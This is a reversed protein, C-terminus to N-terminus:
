PALVFLTQGFEVPEANGVSIETITGAREATIENFIKMAEIICLVQGQVVRDGVKVFPESDPNPAAYFTGVMPSEVRIGDDAPAAAAGPAAAAAAVAPRVTVRAGGVEVSVESQGAGEVVQVLTEILGRDIAMGEDGAEEAALSRRRDVLRRGAEPFQALIVADEESVDSPADALVAALEAPEGTGGAGRAVALADESVDVRLRGRAGLAVDALAPTTERWRVGDVVHRAAQAVIAEGVPPAFTVGGLDRCVAACEDAAEHARAALGQRALRALLGAALDPPLQLQPGGALEAARRVREQAVLPWLVRGAEELAPVDVDFERDGGHLAVYLAEASPRGAVLAAAGVSAHIAHAGALAASLASMSALGGTARLSVEVPLPCRATVNGVLLGMAVPTLNGGLDSICLSTAGPLQSLALAEEVWRADDADPVPGLVLTPVFDIGAERAGEAVGRLADPDNLADYARVRAAGSAAASAVLRAAVGAGVPVEGLLTRGTVVIGLRAGGAHRAVVRLRDLPSETRGDMCARAAAPDIAEIVRAGVPALAAAAAGLDDPAIRAGWPPTGLDRLTVDVLGIATESADTNM